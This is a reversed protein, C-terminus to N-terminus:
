KFAGRYCHITLNKTRGEMISIKHSFTNAFPNRADFHVGFGYGNTYFNEKYIDRLQFIFTFVVRLFNQLIM